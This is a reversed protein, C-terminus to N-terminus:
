RVLAGVLKMMEEESNYMHPSVRIFPGRFSVHIRAAILKEKWEMSSRGEPPLLGFLHAGRNAPDEVWWGQEKLIDLAKETIAADHLQVAEPTLAQVLRLAELMMPVLIFNSKEGMDYRRMGPQYRDQYDTLGAFNESDFRNVWNQELPMGDAFRDGYYALGIAYPGMLWKYGACIIADPQIRSVDFAMAGVSQTGDVILLAGVDRTRKRIAELDFRTGDAWHVHGIAVMATDTTISELIRENWIRGRDMRVEPPEVIHLQAGTFKTVEMWPYVNSPFQGGAVIIRTGARPSFNKAVTAMGYSVSPIISVSSADAISCLRAFAKRLEDPPGFFETTPIRYPEQKRAVATMGAEAVAAALPSMYACNLFTEGPALRFIGKLDTMLSTSLNKQFDRTAVLFLRGFDYGRNGDTM